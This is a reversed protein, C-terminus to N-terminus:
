KMVKMDWQVLSHDSTRASVAWIFAKAEEALSWSVLGKWEYRM